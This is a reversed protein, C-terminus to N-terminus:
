LTLKPQKWSHVMVLTIEHMRQAKKKDNRIIAGKQIEPCHRKYEKKNTITYHIGFM